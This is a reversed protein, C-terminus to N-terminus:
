YFLKTNGEALGNRKLIKVMKTYLETFLTYYPNTLGMKDACVSDAMKEYVMKEYVMKEYVMKEYVVM